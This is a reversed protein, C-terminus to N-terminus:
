PLFFLLIAAAAKIFTWGTNNGNNVNTGNSADWVAGGTAVSDQIALYSATVTGSAKSITAVSGATASSFTVLNGATGSLTFNSVTTTTGSTLKVTCPRATVTINNFTNGGDTVTMTGSATAYNLNYYTSSGGAFSASSATLSITGTGTNLTRGAGTYNFSTCTFTGSGLTLTRTGSTSSYNSNSTLNFNNLNLTGASHTIQGCTSNSTVTLASSASGLSLSPTASASSYNGTGLVSISTATGTSTFTCNGYLSITGWGGSSATISNAYLTSTGSPGGATFTFNVATTASGGTTSGWLFGGNVSGSNTFGGTGTWSFGTLDSGSLATNSGFLNGIAINTSGFTIAKLFNSSNLITFRGPTLTFGNLILTGWQLTFFINNAAASFSTGFTISSGLTVSGYTAVFSNYKQVQINTNFTRGGGLPATFTTASTGALIYSFSSTLVSNNAGFILDGFVTANTTSLSVQNFGNSFDLTGYSGGSANGGITVISTNTTGSAVRFTPFRTSNTGNASSSNAGNCIGPNITYAINGSTNIEFIANTFTVNGFANSSWINASATPYVRVVNGNGNFVNTGGFQGWQGGSDSFNISACALSDTPHLTVTSGGAGQAGILVADVSTPVSAGGSGGSTTSWNTTNTASWTGSGGRWYRNAM